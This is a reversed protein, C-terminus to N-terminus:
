HASSWVFDNRTNQRSFADDGPQHGIAVHIVTNLMERRGLIGIGQEGAHRSIFDDGDDAILDPRQTV